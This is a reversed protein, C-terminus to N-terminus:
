SEKCRKNDTSNKKQKYSQKEKVREREKRRMEKKEMEGDCVMVNKKLLLFTFQLNTFSMQVKSQTKRHTQIVQLM